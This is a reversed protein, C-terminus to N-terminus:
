PVEVLIGPPTNFIKSSSVTPSHSEVNTNGVSSSGTGLVQLYCQDVQIKPPEVPEHTVKSICSYFKNVQMDFGSNRTNVTEQIVPGKNNPIIPTASLAGDGVNSSAVALASIPLYAPNTLPLQAALSSVTM